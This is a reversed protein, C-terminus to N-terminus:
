LLTHHRENLQFKFNFQTDPRLKLDRYSTPYNEIFWVMFQNIDIKDNLMRNINIIRNARIESNDDKLYAIGKELAKLEGEKPNSYIDMLGYTEEDYLHGPVISSIYISPTGLIAAESATSAGDGMVLSAYYLIDLLKEPSIRLRYKDLDKELAGESSIFVPCVKELEEVFKKKARIGKGGIDHTAKWAVFRLIAFKEGNKLGIEELVKPDPNFYNPHLYALEYYSNYRIHKKGLDRKFYSPTLAVDMFPSYLLHQEQEHENSRFNIYPKNFLKSVHAARISGFGIFMDANFDKVAKYMQYDLLPLNKLKEFISTGYGGLYKYKFGYSDLLYTSVEKSSATILLEHGRSEMIRIFNKFFHVHVPHNIDVVLRM